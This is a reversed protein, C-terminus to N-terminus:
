HTQGRLVELESDIIKEHMLRGDSLPTYTDKEGWIIVTPVDIQELYPESDHAITNLFTRRLLPDVAQLYDQGGIVRYFWERIKRMGPMKLFPKGVVALMKAM